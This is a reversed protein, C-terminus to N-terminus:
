LFMQTLKKLKQSRKWAQFDLCTKTWFIIDFYHKAIELADLGNTVGEVTYGKSELFLIHPKLLDIEDDAWLINGSNTM